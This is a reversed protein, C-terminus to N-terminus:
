GTISYTTSLDSEDLALTVEVDAGDNTSGACVLNLDDLQMYYPPETGCDLSSLNLDAKIKPELTLMEDATFINVPVYTIVNGTKEAQMKIPGLDSDGECDLDYTAAEPADTCKVSSLKVGLEEESGKEIVSGAGTAGSLADGLGCGGLLTALVLVSASSAFALRTM